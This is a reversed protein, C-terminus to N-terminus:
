TLVSLKRMVVTRIQLRQQQSSKYGLPTQGQTLYSMADVLQLPVALDASLLLRLIPVLAMMQLQPTMTTVHVLTLVVPQKLNMAREMEMRM